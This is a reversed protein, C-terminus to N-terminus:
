KGKMVKLLHGENISRSLCFLWLGSSECKLKVQDSITVKITNKAYAKNLLKLGSILEKADIWDNDILINMLNQELLDRNFKPRKCAVSPSSMTNYKMCLSKVYDKVLIKQSNKINVESSINQLHISSVPVTLNISNFESVIEELSSNWMIMVLIPELEINAEEIALRRHNGDFCVFESDIDAIYIIGVVRKTEKLTKIIKRVRKTDVERNHEWTRISIDNLIEYPLSYLYRQENKAICYNRLRRRSAAFRRSDAFCHVSSDKKQEM